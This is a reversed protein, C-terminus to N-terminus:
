IFDFHIPGIKSWNSIDLQHQTGAQPQIVVTCICSVHPYCITGYTCFPMGIGKEHNLNLPDWILLSLILTHLMMALVHDSILGM